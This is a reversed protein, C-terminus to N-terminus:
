GSVVTTSVAYPVSFLLKSAVQLIHSWHWFSVLALVGALGTAWWRLQEDYTICLSTVFSIEFSVLAVVFADFGNQRIGATEKFFRIFNEDLGMGLATKSYLGLLSFVVTSYSGALISSVVSVMFVIKAVNVGRKNINANADDQQKSSSSLNKSTGSFLRLAANMLLASIVGYSSLGELRIKVRNIDLLVAEGGGGGRAVHHVLDLAMPVHQQAVWVASSGATTAKGIMRSAKAVMPIVLMTLCLLLLVSLISTHLTSCNRTWWLLPLDEEAFRGDFYVSACPVAFCFVTRFSVHTGCADSGSRLM